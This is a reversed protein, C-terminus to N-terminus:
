HNLLYAGRAFAAVAADRAAVATPFPGAPRTWEGPKETTGQWYFGAPSLPPQPIEPHFAGAMFRVLAGLGGEAEGPDAHRVRAVTVGWWTCGEMAPHGDDDTYENWELLAAAHCGDCIPGADTSVNGQWPRGCDVCPTVPSAAHESHCLSLHPDM